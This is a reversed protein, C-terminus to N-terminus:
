FPPGSTEGQLDIGEYFRLRSQGVRPRSTQITTEAARLDRGFSQVTGPHDRGESECWDCWERYLAKAEISRGPEIICRDRIFAGIPSGLDELEEIAEASSGPQIFHGRENLRRWGEIAWNLIGPLEQTLKETLRTDERGYFSNRMTLVIFRSALAGSADALRPLENTMVMFRTALKGTWDPKHKRPISLADEGSIALLREAIVTQDVRGSLRADSIIALQSGILSQLGFNQSLGSLTPGCVNAEGLLLRLIRAITGKGSRKPGVVLFVKEQSTDSALLYGFVEQLTQIAQPDDPWLQRLFQLWLTPAAADPDYDFGLANLNFFRPTPKHKTLTPLHLLASPTAIFEEAPPHEGDLWAPANVSAPLNAVAKLADLVDDVIRKRPKFPERAEDQSRELYTWIAARITADNALRYAAGDHIWFDGGHYAILRHRQREYHDRILSRASRMPDAADLIPPSAEGGDSTSIRTTTAEDTYGHDPCWARGADNIAERRCTPCTTSM